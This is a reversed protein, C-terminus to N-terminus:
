PAHRQGDRYGAAYAVLLTVAAFIMDPLTGFPVLFSTVGLILAGLFWKSQWPQRSTILALIETM